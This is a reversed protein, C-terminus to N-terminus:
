HRKRGGVGKYRKRARREGTEDCIEGEVCMSRETLPIVGGDNERAPDANLKYIFCLFSLFLTFPMRRGSGLTETQMKMLRSSDDSDNDPPGPPIRSSNVNVM